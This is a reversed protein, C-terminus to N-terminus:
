QGSSIYQPSEGLLSVSLWLLSHLPSFFSFLISIKLVWLFFYDLKSSTDM